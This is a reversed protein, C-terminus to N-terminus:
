KDYPNRKYSVLMIKLSIIKKLKEFTKKYIYFNM